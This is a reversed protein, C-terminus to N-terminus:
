TFVLEVSLIRPVTAHLVLPYRNFMPQCIADQSIFISQIGKLNSTLKARKSFPPALRMKIFLQNKYFSGGCYLNSVAEIFKKGPLFTKLRHKYQFIIGNM